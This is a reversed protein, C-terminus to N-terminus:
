VEGHQLVHLVVPKLIEAVRQCGRPTFHVGDYTLAGGNPGNVEDDLAAALDFTLAGAEDAAQLYWDNTFRTFTVMEALTLKGSPYDIPTRLDIYFSEATAGYGSAESLVLFAAGKSTVAHSFAALNDPLNSRFRALDHQYADCQKASIEPIDEFRSLRERYRQVLKSIGPPPEQEPESEPPHDRKWEYWARLQQRYEGMLLRGDVQSLRKQWGFDNIRTMLVVLDFTMQQQETLYLFTNFSDVINAGSMGANFTAILGPENLRAVWRQSEPVYLAETTSGGLFLVHYKAPAQPDPEIFRRQSIRLTVQDAGEYLGRIDYDVQTGAAFLREPNKLSQAIIEDYDPPRPTVFLRKHHPVVLLYIAIAIALTVTTSVLVLLWQQWARSPPM